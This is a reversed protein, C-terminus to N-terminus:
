NSKIKLKGFEFKTIHIFFNYTMSSNKWKKIRYISPQQPKACSPLRTSTKHCYTWSLYLAQLDMKNVLSGKTLLSLVRTSATLVSYKMSFYCHSLTRSLKLYPESPWQM